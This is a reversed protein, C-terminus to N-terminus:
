RMRGRRLRFSSDIEIRFLITLIAMVSAFFGFVNLVSVSESLFKFTIAEHAFTTGTLGFLAAAGVADLLVPSDAGICYSRVLRYAAIGLIGSLILTVPMAPLLEEFHISFGFMGRAEGTICDFVILASVLAFMLAASCSLAGCVLKVSSM